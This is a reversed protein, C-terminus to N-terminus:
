GLRYPATASQEPLRENSESRVRQKPQGFFRSRSRVAAFAHVRPRVSPPPISRHHTEVASLESYPAAASEEPPGHPTSFASCRAAVRVIPSPEMRPRSRVAAFAHERPKVSPPPISRHHAVVASLESYPAAASEEAPGHPTSFSSCRAAGRVIPSPERSPRSGVRAAGLANTNRSGSMANRLGGTRRGALGRSHGALTRRPHRDRQVTWQKCSLSGRM